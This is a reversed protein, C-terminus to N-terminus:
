HGPLDLQHTDCFQDIPLGDVFEMVFYSLGEPTTGADIVKAIGPHSMLALAQREANFRALVQDSGVGPRVVKIAVERRLPIEQRALYVVGFGGEGLLRVIQYPGIEKLDFVSLGPPPAGGEVPGITAADITEADHATSSREPQDHETM